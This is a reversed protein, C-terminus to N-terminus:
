QLYDLIQNERVFNVSIKDLNQRENRGITTTYRITTEDPITYFRVVNVGPLAVLLQKFLGMNQRDATEKLAIDAPTHYFLRQHTYTEKGMTVLPVARWDGRMLEKVFDLDYDLDIFTSRQFKGTKDSLGQNTKGFATLINAIRPNVLYTVQFSVILSDATFPNPKTSIDHIQALYPDFLINRWLERLMQSRQERNRQDAYLGGALSDANFPTPKVRYIDATVTRNPEGFYEVSAADLPRGFQRGSLSLGMTERAWEGLKDKWQLLHTYRDSMEFEDLKYGLRLYYLDLHLNVLDQNYGFNGAVIYIDYGNQPQIGFNDRWVHQRLLEPKALWNAELPKINLVQLNQIQTLNDKIFSTLGGALWAPSQQPTQDSIPALLVVTQNRSFPIGSNPNAWVKVSLFLILTLILNRHVLHRTNRM